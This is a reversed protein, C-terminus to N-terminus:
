KTLNIAKALYHRSLKELESITLDPLDRKRYVFDPSYCLFGGKTELKSIKSTKREILTQLPDFDFWDKYQQAVYDERKRRLDATDGVHSASWVVLRWQNAQYQWGIRDGNQGRVYAEILPEGNTFGSDFTIENTGILPKMLQSIEAISWRARLKGFADAMRIQELIEHTSSDLFVQEAANLISIEDLAEQLLNIVDVYHRILDGSFGLIENVASSLAISLERYSVFRWSMGSPSVMVNGDWKPNGLSLLILTPNELHDIIKKESYRNLQDDDPPSFVKNEVVIPALGPIEIVLDLNNKERKIQHRTTERSPVWQSFVERAEKPYSECFWALINSHFLEKSNLSMQFVPELALKDCIAQIKQTM